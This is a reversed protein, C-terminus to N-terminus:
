MVAGVTYEDVVQGGALHKELVAKAKETDMKVYTTKGKGQEFVEIIPEFQCLGVCGVGTVDIDLGKEKVGKSLVEYIPTAGAAIGCTAMGVVVRTKSTMQKEMKERLSKLEDLTKM